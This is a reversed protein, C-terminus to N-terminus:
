GWGTRSTQTPALVATKTRSTSLKAIGTCVGCQVRTVPVIAVATCSRDTERWCNVQPLASLRMFVWFNQQSTRDRESGCRVSWVVEPLSVGCVIFSGCINKLELPNQQEAMRYTNRTINQRMPPSFKLWLPIISGWHTTSISWVELVRDTWLWWLVQHACKNTLWILM